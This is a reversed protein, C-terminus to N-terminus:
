NAATQFSTECMPAIARLNVHRRGEFPAIGQLAQYASGLFVTGLASARAEVHGINEISGRSERVALQVGGRANVIRAIGEGYPLFASGQGATYFDLAASQAVASTAAAAIAGFTLGGVVQRRSAAMISEQM